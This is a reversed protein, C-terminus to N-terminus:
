NIEIDAHINKAECHCSILFQFNQFVIPISLDLPAFCDKASLISGGEYLFLITFYFSKATPAKNSAGFQLVPWTLLPIAM